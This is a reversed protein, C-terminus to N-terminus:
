SFDCRSLARRDAFSSIGYQNHEESFITFALMDGFSVLFDDGFTEVLGIYYKGGGAFSDVLVQSGDKPLRQVPHLANPDIQENEPIPLKKAYTYVGLM